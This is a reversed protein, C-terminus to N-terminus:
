RADRTKEIMSLQVSVNGFDYLVCTLDQANVRDLKATHWTHQIRYRYVYGPQPPWPATDVM